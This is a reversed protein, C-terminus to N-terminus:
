VTENIIKADPYKKLLWAKIEPTFKANVTRYGDTKTNDSPLVFITKNRCWTKLQKQEEYEALYEDLLIDLNSQMTDGGFEFIQPKAYEECRKIDVDGNESVSEYWNEAGWGDNHATFSRKGDVYVTVSFVYGDHGQMQKLNKVEIKPAKM